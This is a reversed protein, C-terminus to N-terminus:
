DLLEGPLEFLTDGKRFLYNQGKWGSGVVVDIRETRSITKSPALQEVASEFYSGKTASMEYTLYPNSTRLVNSGPTFKGAISNKSPLRSTLHHATQSYTTAEEIHCPRCADDGVYAQRPAPRRETSSAASQQPSNPLVVGQQPVIGSSSLRPAFLVAWLVVIM